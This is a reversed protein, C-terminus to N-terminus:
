KKMETTGRYVRIRKTLLSKSISVELNAFNRLTKVILVPGSSFWLDFQYHQAIATSHSSGFAFINSWLM